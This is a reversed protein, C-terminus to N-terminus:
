PQEPVTHALGTRGALARIAPRLERYHGIVADPGLAALPTDSYGFTVGIVPVAAARATAVDVGSDGVMIARAPDGGAAAIVGTLHGPDPKCVAFTDRGAIARFRPTMGLLDLLLRSWAERKNTCVALAAGEAALADLVDEVGPFPRSEHAINALYHELFRDLSRETAAEDLAM